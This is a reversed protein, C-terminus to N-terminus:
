SGQNGHTGLADKFGSNIAMFIVEAIDKNTYSETAMFPASLEFLKMYTANTTIYHSDTDSVFHLLVKGLNSDMIANYTNNASEPDLSSKLLEPLTFMNEYGILVDKVQLQAPVDNEMKANQVTKLNSQLVTKSLDASSLVNSYTGGSKWPHSASFFPKDDGGHYAASDTFGNNIIDVGTNEYTLNGSRGLFFGVQKAFAASKAATKQQLWSVRVMYGFQKQPVTTKYGEKMDTSQVDDGEDIEPAAGFGEYGIMQEFKQDTTEKGCFMKWEKNPTTFAHTIAFKINKCMRGTAADFNTTVAAM